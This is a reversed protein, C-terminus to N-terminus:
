NRVDRRRLRKEMAHVMRLRAPRDATPYDKAYRSLWLMIAHRRGFGVTRTYTEILREVDVLRLSSREDVPAPPADSRARRPM